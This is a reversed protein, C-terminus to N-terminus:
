SHFLYLNNGNEGTCGAAHLIHMSTAPTMYQCCTYVCDDYTYACIILSVYGRTEAENNNLMGIDFSAARLLYYHPTSRSDDFLLHKALRGLKRDTLQRYITAHRRNNGGDRRTLSLPKSKRGNTGGTTETWLVTLRRRSAEAQTKCWAHV